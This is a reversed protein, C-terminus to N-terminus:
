ACGATRASSATTRTRTAPSRARVGPSARLLVRFVVEGVRDREAEGLRKIDESRLGEVYETVLVRRTALDTHVRPVRVHPHGRLLRGLRRQHQAELEYDLEDSIRERIEALM